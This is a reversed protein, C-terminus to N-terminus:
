ADLHVADQSFIAHILICGTYKKCWWEQATTISQEGDHHSVSQFPYGACGIEPM